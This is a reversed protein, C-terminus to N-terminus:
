CLFFVNSIGCFFFRVLSLFDGRNFLLCATFLAGIVVFLDNSFNEM